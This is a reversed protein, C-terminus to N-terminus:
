HQARWFAPDMAQMVAKMYEDEIDSQHEQVTGIIHPREGSPRGVRRAGWPEKPADPGQQDARHSGGARLQVSYRSGSLRVSSGRGAGVATPVPQPQLRQRVFEGVRKHAKQMRKPLDRDAARSVQRQFAELGEVEIGGKSALAM